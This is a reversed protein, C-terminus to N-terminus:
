GISRRLYEESAHRAANLKKNSDSFNIASTNCKPVDEDEYVIRDSLNCLDLLSQQRSNNSRGKQLVSFFPKNFNVSFATGHFSNTIVFSANRFLYIFESPGANEAVICDDKRHSFIQQYGLLKVVACGTEHAVSMALRDMFASKRLEYVLVYRAPVGSLPHEVRKWDDEDILLTPDLVLEADRGSLEKVLTVGTKERVSIFDLGKIHQSYREKAAEPIRSSGFSSAYSLKVSKQPAFALFYPALNTFCRPNWVQDSGVCYADYQPVNAYLESISAYTRSMKTFEKHFKDFLKQKATGIRLVKTLIWERCVMLIEKLRDKMPYPYFPRSRKGWKAGRSKYFLYDIIEADYGMLCLKRQLAYAQLEAGYNEVKLITIIGISKM